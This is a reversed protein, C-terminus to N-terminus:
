QGMVAELTQDDRGRLDHGPGPWRSSFAVGIVADSKSALTFLKPSATRRTGSRSTAIPAPAHGVAPWRPHLGREYGRRRHRLPGQAPLSHAPAPVQELPRGASRTAVPELLWPRSPRWPDQVRRRRDHRRRSRSDGSRRDYSGAVTALRRGDAALHWDPSVTPRTGRSHM